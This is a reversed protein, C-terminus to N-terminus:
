PSLMGRKRKQGEIAGLRAGAGSMYRSPYGAIKKNRMGAFIPGGMTRDAIRKIQKKAGADAIARRTGQMVSASGRAGVSPVKGLMKSGWDLINLAAGWGTKVEGVGLIELDRSLKVIDNIENAIDEGFLLKGKESNAGLGRASKGFKKLQQEITLSQNTPAQLINM